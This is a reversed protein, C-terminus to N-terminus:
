GLTVFVPVEHRGARDPGNLAVQANRGDVMAAARSCPESTERRDPIGGQQGFDTAVEVGPATV